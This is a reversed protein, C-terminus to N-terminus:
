SEEPVQFRWENIQVELYECFALKVTCPHFEGYLGTPFLLPFCLVELYKQHNDLPEEHVSYPDIDRGTPMYQDVKRITYAQLGHVDNESARELIPNSASNVVEVAKKAAEDISGEDM